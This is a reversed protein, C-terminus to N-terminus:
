TEGTKNKQAMVRVVLCRGHKGNLDHWLFTYPNCLYFPPYDYWRTAASPQNYQVWYGAPISRGNTLRFPEPERTPSDIWYDRVPTVFVAYRHETPDLSDIPGQLRELRHLDRLFGYGYVDSNWHSRYKLEIPVHGADCHWLIDLASRSGECPDKGGPPLAKGKSACAKIDSPPPQHPPIKPLAFSVRVNKDCTTLQHGLAIHFGKENTFDSQGTCAARVHEIIVSSLDTDM